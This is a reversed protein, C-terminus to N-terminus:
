SSTAASASATASAPASGGPATSAVPSASAPSSAPASSSVPTASASSPPPPPASPLFTGDVAAGQVPVLLGTISGSIGFTLGITITDGQQLQATLTRLLVNIRITGPGSATAAPVTTVGAAQLSESAPQTPAASAAAGSAAAPVAPANLDASVNLLPDPRNSFNIADFQLYALGGKASLDDSPLAIIADEIQLTTGIKVAAAQLNAIAHRTPSGFGTASCAVLVPGCLAAVAVVAVVPVRAALLITTRLGTRPSSDVLNASV